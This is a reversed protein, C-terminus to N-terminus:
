APRTISTPPTFTEGAYLASSTFRFGHIAPSGLDAYVSAFSYNDWFLAEAPWDQDEQYCKKGNVYMSLRRQSDSAGPRVVVAYHFFGGGALEPLVRVGTESSSSSAVDIISTVPGAGLEVRVTIGSGEAEYLGLRAFFNGFRLQVGSAITSAGSGSSSNFLKAMFEYTYAHGAPEKTVGAGYAQIAGAGGSSPISFAGTGSVPGGGPLFIGDAPDIPEGPNAINFIFSFPPVRKTRVKLEANSPGLV